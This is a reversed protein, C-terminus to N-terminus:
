NCLYSHIDFKLMVSVEKLIIPINLQAEITKLLPVYIMETKSTVARRKRGALRYTSTEKLTIREPMQM